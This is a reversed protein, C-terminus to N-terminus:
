VGRDDPDWIVKHQQISLRANLRDKLIWAALDQFAVRDWVPSLHIKDAPRNQLRTRIMQRAFEYDERSGIVFKIEDQFTLHALNGALFSDQEGSSPCKVDLIRICRPDVGQIDRSGNTEILVQYGEELLTQILEPTQAQILPEGGTIEVLRCGFARVRDLITELSMPKSEKGSRSYLTDCWTCSLNCGSLRVLVCPLGAFTSEGQLSYFIECINLTM